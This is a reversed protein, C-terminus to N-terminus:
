SSPTQHGLLDADELANLRTHELSEPSFYEM